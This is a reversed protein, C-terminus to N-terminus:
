WTIQLMPLQERARTSTFVHVARVVHGMNSFAMAFASKM